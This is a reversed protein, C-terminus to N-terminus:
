WRPPRRWRQAVVASASHCTVFDTPPTLEPLELRLEGARCEIRVAARVACHQAGRMVWREVRGVLATKGRVAIVRRPSVSRALDGAGDSDDFLPYAEIAAGREVMAWRQSTGAVQWVGALPAPCDQESAPSATRCGLCLALALSPLAVKALLSM